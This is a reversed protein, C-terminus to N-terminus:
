GEPGAPLNENLYRTLLEFLHRRTNPGESIDHTRNPYVMMTFKKNAEIMANVVAETSQYHVNDDGTGHVILLNGMLGKVHTIPSGQEYGEPNDKPRGMYREQYITDYYRQDTVPAVSMGTHYLEPYRFLANLTMSGGGSWGWVGIRTSDVYEWRRIIRVAAAQDKSALIGIQRYISKRWARGRPAPTGRNDVSVVIYGQQTLLLHWIYRLNRGGAWSDLVTQRWPEGYVYVLVPYRKNSDFNPPKMRWGDLQVGGGIDARFFETPKRRLAAVKMRLSANDVLTRVVKHEPLQVLDIVPPTDISSYTHFAWRSDPSMEYEHTGRQNYPSLREERGRGDIRVRYLYRQTPNDPSAIYYLWGGEGDINAIEVIDFKGPTVLRVMEGSRSFLYAHRWGDRESVWTCRRGNDFWLMDDVVEVWADDRETLITRVRGTRANGFMVENRNQSRNLHQIVIEESNAAWEMRPIYNDRPDGPVDFWRTGGGDANVVGIRCASNTHGTKPYQVPIIFSYLSDTNNILYFDRVGEADLQWYAISEGDPSWRYGDRMFFEEEYVWDFTGNIVTRSGDETLQTIRHGNLDEVYLNNERVYAIRRGDPSFKAFMLTSAKADGGLKRMKWDTLDVLWYDGRTKKRWVRKSNTFVLVMRADPSWDYDDIALPQSRGPPILREAPVIKDRLGTETDYRVIDKAGAVVDSPEVTTYGSGGDLWRAPGFKEPVFERSSFIRGLTLLSPDSTQAHLSWAIPVIILFAMLLRSFKMIKEKRCYPRHVSRQSCLSSGATSVVSAWEAAKRVVDRFYDVLESNKLNGPANLTAARADSPIPHTTKHINNCHLLPM